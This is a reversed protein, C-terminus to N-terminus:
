KCNVLEDPIPMAVLDNRQETLKVDLTVWGCYDVNCNYEYIDLANYPPAQHGGIVVLRNGLSVVEPDALAVPLSADDKWEMDEFDFYETSSLYPYEDDSVDVGGVVMVYKKGDEEFLACGHGSRAQIMDPGDTWDGTLVDLFYTKRALDSNQSNTGGIMMVTSESTKVLCHSHHNQNPLLPGPTVDGSLSVFETYDLYDLGTLWLKDNIAIATHSTAGISMTAVQEWGNTTLKHCQNYNHPAGDEDHWTGGCIMPTTGDVLDGAGGYAPLPFDPTTCENTPNSLDIVETKGVGSGADWNWGM